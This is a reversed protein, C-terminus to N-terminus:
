GQLRPTAVATLITVGFVTFSTFRLIEYDVQLENVESWAPVLRLVMASVQCRRLEKFVSLHKPGGPRFYGLYECCVIPDRLGEDSLHAQCLSIGKAAFESEAGMLPMFNGAISATRGVSRTGVILEVPIETVGLDEWFATHADRV